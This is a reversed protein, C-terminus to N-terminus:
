TISHLYKGDSLLVHLEVFLDMWKVDQVYCLHIPFVLIHEDSGTDSKDSKSM